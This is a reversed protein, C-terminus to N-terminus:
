FSPQNFVVESPQQVCWDVGVHVNIETSKIKKVRCDDIKEANLAAIIVCMRAHVELELFESWLQQRKSVMELMEQNDVYYETMREVEKEHLM